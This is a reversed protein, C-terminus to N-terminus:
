RRNKGNEEGFVIGDKKLKELAIKYCEESCCALWNTGAIARVLMLRGCVSCKDEYEVMPHAEWTKLKDNYILVVKYEKFDEPRAPYHTSFVMKKDTIIYKGEPVGFCNVEVPKENM